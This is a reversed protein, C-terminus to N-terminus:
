QTPRPRRHESGGAIPRRAGIDAPEGARRPGRPNPRQDLISAHQHSEREITRKRLALFRLLEGLVKVWSTIRVSSRGGPRVLIETPIETYCAGQELLRYVVEADLFWGTSILEIGQVLDRRILKFASNVQTVELGLVIQLLTNYVRSQIRRFLSRDDSVRFSFVCDHDSLYPLALMLTDLRFPMDVTVLWIFDMTAHRYGLRVASGFGNPRDERILRIAPNEAALRSCIEATGDRSGSEIVILEYREVHENLFRDMERLAAEVLLAEQYVPVITSISINSKM